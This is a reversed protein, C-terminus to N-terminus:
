SCQMVMVAGGGRGIPSCHYSTMTSLLGLSAASEIHAQNKKIKYLPYMDSCLSVQEANKHAPFSTRFAKCAINIARTM